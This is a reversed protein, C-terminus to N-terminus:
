SRQWLRIGSLGAFLITLVGVRQVKSQYLPDTLNDDFQFVHPWPMFQGKTVIELLTYMLILALAYEFKQTWLMLSMGVFLFLLLLLIHHVYVLFPLASFDSELITAMLVIYGGFYVLFFRGADVWIWKRYQLVLTHYAGEEFLPHLHLMITWAVCPIFVTHVIQIGSTLSDSLASVELVLFVLMPLLAAIGHLKWDFMFLHHLIRGKKM